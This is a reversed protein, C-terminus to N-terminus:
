IRYKIHWVGLCNDFYEKGLEHTSQTLEQVKFIECNEVYIFKPNPTTASYHNPIPSKM